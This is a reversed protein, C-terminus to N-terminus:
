LTDNVIGQYNGLAENHLSIEDIMSNGKQHESIISNVDLFVGVCNTESNIQKYATKLTSITEKQKDTLM